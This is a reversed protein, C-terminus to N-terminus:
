LFDAAISWLQSIFLMKHMLKESAQTVNCIWCQVSVYVALDKLGHMYCLCHSFFDRPLFFYSCTMNSLNFYKLDSDEPIHCGVTWYIDVSIKFFAWWIRLVWSRIIHVMCMKISRTRWTIRIAYYGLFGAYNLVPLIESGQIESCVLLTVSHCLIDTAPPERLTLTYGGSWM